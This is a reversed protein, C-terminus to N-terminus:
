TNRYSNCNEMSYYYFTLGNEMNLYHYVDCEYEFAWEIQVHVCELRMWIMYIYEYIIYLIYQTHHKENNRVNQQLVHFIPLFITCSSLLSSLIRSLSFSSLTLAFTHTKMYDIRYIDSRSM